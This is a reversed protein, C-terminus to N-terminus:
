ALSYRAVRAEGYRTRKWVLEADIDYGDRRLDYIRAGLRGIGLRQQAELPTLSGRRKLYGLILACQPKM